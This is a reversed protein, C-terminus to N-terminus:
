TLSSKPFRELPQSGPGRAAKQCCHVFKARSPRQALDKRHISQLLHRTSQQRHRSKGKLVPSFFEQGKLGVKDECNRPIKPLLKKQTRTHEHTHPHLAYTHLHAPLGSALRLHASALRLHQEEEAAMSRRKPKDTKSVFEM